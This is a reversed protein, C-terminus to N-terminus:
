KKALREKKDDNNYYNTLIKLVDLCEGENISRHAIDPLPKGREHMPSPTNLPFASLHIRMKGKNDLGLFPILKSKM